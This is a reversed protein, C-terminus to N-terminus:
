VEILMGSDFNPNLDLQKYGRPNCVVRTGYMDYDFSDHTHGHLWAAVREGGMLHDLRSAYSANLHAGKRERRFRESISLECPAHHTVVVTPGAFGRALEAEIFGRAAQHEKLLDDPTIANGLDDTILRYDKMYQVADLSAFPQAGTLGFDTWLTAGVFRVGGVIVAARDLIRVMSGEAASQMDRMTAALSSGYAEHNGATYIVPVQFNQLGM